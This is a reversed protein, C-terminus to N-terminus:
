ASAAASQRREQYRTFAQLLAVPDRPNVVVTPFLGQKRKIRLKARFAPQTMMIHFISFGAGLQIDAVNDFPIEMWTFGTRRILIRDPEIVYRTSAQVAVAGALLVVM